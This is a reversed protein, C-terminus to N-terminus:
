IGVDGGLRGLARRVIPLFIGDDDVLRCLSPSQDIFLDKWIVDDDEPPHGLLRAHVEKSQRVLEDFERADFAQRHVVFGFADFQNIEAPSLFRSRGTVM